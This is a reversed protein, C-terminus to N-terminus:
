RENTGYLNLWEYLRPKVQWEYLGEVGLFIGIGLLVPMEVPTGAVAAAALTALEVTGWALLGGGAAVAGRGIFQEPTLGYEGRNWVDGTGPWFWQIGLDGVGALSAGFWRSGMWSLSHSLYDDGVRGTWRGASETFEGFASRELAQGRLFRIGGTSLTHLSRNAPLSEVVSRGGLVEIAREPLRTLLRHRSASVSLRILSDEALHQTTGYTIGQSVGQQVWWRAQALFGLNVATAPARPYSTRGPSTSLPALDDVSFAFRNLSGPAQPLGGFPDPQVYSGV